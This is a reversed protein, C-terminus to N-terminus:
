SNKRIRFRQDLAGGVVALPIRIRCPCIASDHWLRRMSADQESESAEMGREFMM